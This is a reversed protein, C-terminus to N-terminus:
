TSLIHQASSQIRRRSTDNLLGNTSGKEGWKLPRLVTIVASCRNRVARYCNILDGNVDGLVATRPELAFFLSGGGLFPEFYTGFTPISHILRPPLWRKGGAWKLFPLM